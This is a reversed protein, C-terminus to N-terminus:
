EANFIFLHTSVFSDIIVVQSFNLCLDEVTKIEIVLIIFVIIEPIESFWWSSISFTFLKM